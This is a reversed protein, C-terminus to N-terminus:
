ENHADERGLLEGAKGPLGTQRGVREQLGRLLGCRAVEVGIEAAPHELLTDGAV